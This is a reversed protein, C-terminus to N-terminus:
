KHTVWYIYALVAQNPNGCQLLDVYMMKSYMDDVTLFKFICSEVKMLQVICM